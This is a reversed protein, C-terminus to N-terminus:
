VGDFEAEIMKRFWIAADEKEEISYESLKQRHKNALKTMAKLNDVIRKENTASPDYKILANSTVYNFEFEKVGHICKFVDFYVNDIRWEQPIKKAFPVHLRLRGPISHVVKVKIQMNFLIDSIFM